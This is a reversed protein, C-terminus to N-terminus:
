ATPESDSRDRYRRRALYAVAAFAAVAAAGGLATFAVSRGPAVNLALAAVASACAGCAAAALGAATRAGIADAAIREVGRVQITQIALDEMVLLGAGYLPALLLRMDHRALFIAGLLAVAVHVPGPSGALM